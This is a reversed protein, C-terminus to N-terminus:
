ESLVLVCKDYIKPSNLILSNGFHFNEFKDIKKTDRKMLSVNKFDNNDIIMDTKLSSYDFSPIKMKLVNISLEPKQLVKKELINRIKAKKEQIIQFFICNNYM